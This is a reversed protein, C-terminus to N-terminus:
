FNSFVGDPTEKLEEILAVGYSSFEEIPNILKSIMMSRYLDKRESFERKKEDSISGCFMEFLAIDTKEKNVVKLEPEDRGSERKADNGSTYISEIFAAFTEKWDEIM